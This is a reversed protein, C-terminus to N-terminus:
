RSSRCASCRRRRRGHPHGSGARVGRDAGPGRQPAGAAAARDALLRRLDAPPRAARPVGQPDPPRRRHPGPHEAPEPQALGAPRHGHRAPPLHLPHARDEPRDVDRLNGLYTSILKTLQRYEIILRPVSTRPDNRDEEAALKELVEIDTSRGTKTKKGAYASGTSCCKPWSSPHLQPPVRLRRDRPDAAAAGGRADGLEEGQRQLEEPDCLIGNAEMEALVVRSRRRSRAAAAGGHGDGGAPADPTTSGCRSTRTRPRTPVIQDLPVRDM